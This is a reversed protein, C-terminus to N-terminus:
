QAPKYTGLNQKQPAPAPKAAPQTRKPAPPKAPETTKQTKKPKAHRPPKLHSEPLLNDLIEQYEQFVQWFEPDDQNEERMKLLKFLTHAKEIQERKGGKAAPKKFAVVKKPKPPFAM